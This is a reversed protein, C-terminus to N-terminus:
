SPSAFSGCLSVSVMLDKLDAEHALSDPLVEEFDAFFGGVDTGRDHGTARIGRKSGAGNFDLEGSISIYGLEKFIPVDFRVEEVLSRRPSFLMALSLPTRNLTTGM